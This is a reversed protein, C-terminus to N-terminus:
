WNRELEVIVVRDPPKRTANPLKRTSLGDARVQALQCKMEAWKVEWTAKDNAYAQQLQCRRAEEERLEERFQELLTRLAQLM